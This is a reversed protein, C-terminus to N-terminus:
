GRARRRRSRGRRNGAGPAGGFNTFFSRVANGRGAGVNRLANRRASRAGRGTFQQNVRRTAAVVGPATRAQRAITNEYSRSTRQRGVLAQALWRYEARRLNAGTVRIGARRARQLAARAEAAGPRNGSAVLDANRALEAAQRPTLLQGRNRSVLGRVNATNAAARGQAFAGAGGAGARAGQRKRAM